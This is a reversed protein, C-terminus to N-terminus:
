PVARSECEPIRNSLNGLYSDATEKSMREHSMGLDHARDAPLPNRVLPDVIAGMGHARLM